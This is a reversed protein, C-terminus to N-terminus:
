KVSGFRKEMIKKGTKRVDGPALKNYRITTEFRQHGLHDQLAKQMGVDDGAEHLWDVALSARFIHPHVYHEAGTTPNLIKGIDAAEGARRVILYAHQRTLPLLEKINSPRGDLYQRILRMTSSSVNILRSREQLGEAVVKSLDMGCHSCFPQSRGAPKLCKPCKKRIGRKLHPILVLNKQFDLHEIKISLLESIRTGTDALFSILVKDRLTPAQAIMQKIETPTLYTKM